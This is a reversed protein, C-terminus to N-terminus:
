QEGELEPLISVRAAPFAERAIKRLGGRPGSIKGDLPTGNRDFARWHPRNEDPASLTGVHRGNWAYVAHHKEGPKFTVAALLTSDKLDHARLEEPAAPEVTGTEPAHSPDLFARFPAVIEFGWAAAFRVAARIQDVTWGNSKMWAADVATDDALAHLNGANATIAVPWTAALGVVREEPIFLCDGNKIDERCQTADYAAGTSEFQHFGEPKTPRYVASPERNVRLTLSYGFTEAYAARAIERVHLLHKEPVARGKNWVHVTLSWDRGHRIEVRYEKGNEAFLGAAIFRPNDHWAGKVPATRAPRGNHDTDFTFM